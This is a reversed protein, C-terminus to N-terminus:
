LNFKDKLRISAMGWSGKAYAEAEIDDKGMNIQQIKISEKYWDGIAEALEKKPIFQKRILAKIKSETEVALQLRYNFLEKTTHNMEDFYFHLEREIEGWDSVKSELKTLDFYSKLEKPDCHGRSHECKIHFPCGCESQEPTSCKHGSCGCCKGSKNDKCAYHTGESGHTFPKLDSEWEKARDTPECEHIEEYFASEFKRKCVNCKSARDTKNKM